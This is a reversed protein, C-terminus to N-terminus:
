LNVEKFIETNNQSLSEEETRLESSSAINVSDLFYQV